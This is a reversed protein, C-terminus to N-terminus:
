GIERIEDRQPVAKVLVTFAVRVVSAWSPNKEKVATTTMGSKFGSFGNAVDIPGYTFVRGSLGSFKGHIRHPQARIDKNRVKKSIVVM